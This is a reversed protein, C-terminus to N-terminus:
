PAVRNRGAKKAAYLQTDARKVLADVNEGALAPLFEAVGVSITVSIVDSEHHFAELEVARRLKEALARGGALQSEPLILAFEEGGIRAVLDNTRVKSQVLAGLRRLVTDGAQHGHRDNIQKFHDIDLLMLVFRHGYRKSRTLERELAEQFYRRNFVQTLGDVTMLRYIEEHYQAEVNSSTLFKLMARGIRIQDGDKLMRERVPQDNVFTGNTSDQDRLVFGRASRTILAHNRSVSEADIQLDATSARGIMTDHEELTIRRGIEAGFLIVLCAHQAQEVKEPAPAATLVTSELAILGTHEGTSSAPGQDV